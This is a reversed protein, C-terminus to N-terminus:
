EPEEGDEDENEEEDTVADLYAPVGQKKLHRVVKEVEDDSVFPGHVRIIRGGGAMYLMDGQGVLKEAGKVDLIVRSDLQSSVQFAIRCPINAKIIGTVVDARPTQTAIILHIGAARAKQAIRAILEEVKKGVIMMMDAFEDIVVVIYPFTELTPTEEPVDPLAPLWFPDKIPQGKEEADRVKKNYGAINRVGMSAMLRYRREMEAVCWRLANAAEKMDTVVPALLHPIGEYVSLELMKPGLAALLRIPPEAPPVARYPSADMAELYARMQTLPKSYDLKRLGAVMPEHSVGLGLVFRGDIQEALTNAAQMM